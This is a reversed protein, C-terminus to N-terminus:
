LTKQTRRSWALWFCFASATGIAALACIRRVAHDSWGGHTFAALGTQPWETMSALIAGIILGAIISSWVNALRLRALILLAPLAFIVIALLSSAVGVLLLLVAYGPGRLGSEDSVFEFVAFLVASVVTAVVFADAIARRNGSISQMRM